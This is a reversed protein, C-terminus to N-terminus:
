EEEATEFDISKGRIFVAKGPAELRLETTAHVTLAGPALEVYSGGANEVRLINNEDDLRVRQGAPTVLTYRKVSGSEIGTDPPGGMGYLGGLVVGHGPDDYALAVLVLDDVDPQAVLGKRDGAGVALVGIWDTEVDGFSPLRVRVRGKEDPDDIRTVTAAAVTTGRERAPLPAPETSLESLFGRTTDVTHTVTTLVYRGNLEADLGHVAVPTGAGLRPDGGAVGRFVVERQIRVDLEAQALGAAHDDDPTREDLLTLEGSGGVSDPPADAEVDRGVRPELAVARHPEARTADWGFTEVNRAAPDGNVEVRAEILEEGLTLDIEDGVGQASILHLAGDRVTMDLGCRRAVDLLLQYDTQRHQILYPWLPGPDEAEVRLGAEGTLERALDAVTVNVHARVKQQKRLTHLADYGRVFVTRGTDPRYVYEVATVQGDFLPEDHGSVSVKLPAGPALMETVPQLDGPSAFTLECLAPLSLSQRVRVSELLRSGDGGLPSGGSEVTIRPVTLVAGASAERNIGGNEPTM